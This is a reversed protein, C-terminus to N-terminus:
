NGYGDIHVLGELSNPGKIARHSMLGFASQIASWEPVMSRNTSAYSTGGLIAEIFLSAFLSRDNVLKVSDWDVRFSKRGDVGHVISNPQGLQPGLEKAWSPHMSVLGTVNGRPRSLVSKLWDTSTCVIVYQSNCALARMHNMSETDASTLLPEGNKTTWFSFEGLKESVVVDDGAFLQQAMKNADVGKELTMIWLYDRITEEDASMASRSAMAVSPSCRYFLDKKLDLRPGEPDTLVADIMDDFLGPVKPDIAINMSQSLGEFWDKMQVSLGAWAEADNLDFSPIQIPLDSKLSLLKAASALTPKTQLQYRVIWANGGQPISVTASAANLSPLFADKWAISAPTLSKSWREAFDTPKIWLRLDGANGNELEILGSEAGGANPSSARAGGLVGRAAADQLWSELHKQSASVLVIKGLSVLYSKSRPNTYWNANGQNGGIPVQTPKLGAPGADKSWSGIFRQSSAEDAFVLASVTGSELMATKMSFLLGRSDLGSLHEWGFGFWPQPNLFSGVGDSAQKKAISQWKPDRYQKGVSSNALARELELSSRFALYSDAGSPLIQSLRLDSPGSQGLVQGGELSALGLCVWSAFLRLSNKVRESSRVITRFTNYM